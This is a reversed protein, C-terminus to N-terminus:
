LLGCLLGILGYVGTQSQHHLRALIDQSVLLGELGQPVALALQDDDGVVSRGEALRLNLVVGHQGLSSDVVVGTVVILQSGRTSLVETHAGEGDSVGPVRVDDPGHGSGLLGSLLLMPMMM